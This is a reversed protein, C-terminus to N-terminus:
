AWLKWNLAVLLALLAVPALLVLMLHATARVWRADSPRHDHMATNM